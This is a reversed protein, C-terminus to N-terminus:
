ELRVRYVEALSTNRQRAYALANATLPVMGDLLAQAQIQETSAEDTIMKQIAPTVELLEYVAMRGSYGTGNCHECGAGRYFVEEPSVNLTTRITSEVVEETKCHECNKRILRQALIGVLTSGLLYSEVEMNRLRSITSAADNTHLTSLVLHGTLASKLAIHATEQDRIEGILIVDPDHRLIHRLAEAFTYGIDAKVQIQMIGDIHYEVPNEVTIINLNRKRVENLAAYLTTSKGSGTPGTVLILGASRNLMAIIKAEDHPSFGLASIPKLGSKTDLVRIVMSEGNVTPMASVRMDVINDKFVARMQGDQPLRKESIDMNSLIKLRSILAPLLTKPLHKIDTLEGDIRFLVDFHDEGPRIHIDSAHRRIAELLLEQVLRVLPKENALQEADLQPQEITLPQIDMQALTATANSNSTANSVAWAIDASTAVTIEINHGTIFRLLEVSEYDTPDEMAVVLRDDHMMIPVIRHHAVWEAEVLALARTDPKMGQLKVFPLGLNHALVSQYTEPSIAGMQVLVDGLNKARNVTQNHLALNLQQQTILGQNLLTTGIKEPAKPPPQELATILMEQSVPQTELLYAGIRKAQLEEHSKIGADLQDPTTAGSQLLAEPMSAGLQHNKVSRRPVFMRVCQDHAVVPFLHIGDNSMLFGRTKGTVQKGDIFSLTFTQLSDPLTISLNAVALPHSTTAPPLPTSFVMYRLSAYPIDIGQKTDDLNLHIVGQVRNIAELQGHQIKGDLLHAVVHQHLLEGEDQTTTLPAAPFDLLNPM